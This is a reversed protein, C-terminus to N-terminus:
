PNPHLYTASSNASLEADAARAAPLTITFATGRGLESEVAISGGHRAILERASNLGLGMRGTGSKTTLFPASIRSLLEDAMGIGTDTIRLMVLSGQRTTQIEIDGGIPMADIANLIMNVVVERLASAQGAVLMPGEMLRASIHLVIRQARSVKEVLPQTFEVTDLVVENLDFTSVPAEPVPQALNRLKEVLESADRTAKKVSLLGARLEAVDVRGSEVQALMLDVRGVVVTLLNNFNHAVGGAVTTISDADAPGPENNFVRRGM